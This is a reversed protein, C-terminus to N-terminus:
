IVMMKEKRFFVALVSMKGIDVDFREKVVM